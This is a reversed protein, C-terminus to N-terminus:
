SNNTKENEIMWDLYVKAKKLDEVGGKCNYRWLYKMCNGRCFGLFEKTSMSARIADICEIDGQNYHNPHKIKSM